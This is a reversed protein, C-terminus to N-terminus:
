RESLTSTTAKGIVYPPYDINFSQHGNWIFNVEKTHYTSLNQM